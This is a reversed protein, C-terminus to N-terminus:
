LVGLFEGRDGHVHVAGRDNGEEDSMVACFYVLGSTAQLVILGNDFRLVRAGVLSARLSRAPLALTPNPM